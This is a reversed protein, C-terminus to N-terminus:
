PYVQVWGLEGNPDLRVLWSHNAALDIEGQGAGKTVSVRFSYTKPPLDVMKIMEVEVAVTQNNLEINATERYFNQFYLRGQGLPPALKEKADASSETPRASTTPTAAVTSTSTATPQSTTTPSAAMTATSTPQPTTTNSTTPSPVVTSTSTPQPTATAITTTFTAKALFTPTATPLPTNTPRTAALTVAVTPTTIQAPTNTPTPTTTLRTATATIVTQPLTSIVRPTATNLPAPNFNAATSVVPVAMDRLNLQASRAFIVLEALQGARIEFADPAIAIDETRGTAAHINFSYRGPELIIPWKQLAPIVYSQGSPGILDFVIEVPSLNEATLAAKDVPVEIV